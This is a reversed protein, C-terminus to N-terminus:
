KSLTMQITSTRTGARLVATYTGSPHGTADFRLSHEGPEQQGAFLIEVLRGLADFVEVSVYGSSATEYRLLTSPNFPNPYNQHLQFRGAVGPTTADNIIGFIVEDDSSLIGDSGTIRLRYNTGKPAKILAETLESEFCILKWTTGNDTSFYVTYWFKTDGDADTAGWKAIFSGGEPVYTGSTPYTFKVVPANNSVIRETIPKLNKDSVVVKKVNDPFPAVFAFYETSMVAPEAGEDLGLAQFTPRYYYRSLEAGGADLFRFIHTALASDVMNSPTANTMKVWPGFSFAKTTSDISGEVFIAKAALSKSFGPRDSRFKAFGNQLRAYDVDCIWTNFPMSENTLKAMGMFCYVKELRGVKNNLGYHLIRNAFPDVADYIEKGIFYNYYEEQMDIDTTSMDGRRLGFSHGLSHVLFKHSQPSVVMFDYIGSWSATQSLRHPFWMPHMRTGFWDRDVAFVYRDYAPNALRMQKYAKMLYREWTDVLLTDPNIWTYNQVDAGRVFSVQGAKMPWTQEMLTRATDTMKSLENLRNAPYDDLAQVFVNLTAGGENGWSSGTVKVPITMANNNENTEIIRGKPHTADVPDIVVAINANGPTLTTNHIPFYLFPSEARPLSIETLPNELNHDVGLNKKDFVYFTDYPVGGVSVRVGFKDTIAESTQIQVRVMFPKNNTISTEGTITQLVAGEVFDIDAGQPESVSIINAQDICQISKFYVELAIASKYKQPVKIELSCMGNADMTLVGKMLTDGLIRVLYNVTAGASDTGDLVNWFHGTFTVKDEGDAVMTRKDPGIDFWYSTGAYKVRLFPDFHASRGLRENNYLGNCQGWYNKTIDITDTKLTTLITSQLGDRQFENYNIRVGSVDASDFGAGKSDITMTTGAEFLNYEIVSQNSFNMSSNSTGGKFKSNRCSTPSNAPRLSLQGNSRFESNTVQTAMLIADNEVICKDASAAGLIQAENRLTCLSAKVNFNPSNVFAFDNRGQDTLWDLTCNNMVCEYNNYLLFDGGIDILGNLPSMQGWCQFNLDRVTGGSASVKGPKYKPDNADYVIIGSVKGTNAVNYSLNCGPAFHMEGGPLAIGIDTGQYVFPGEPYIWVSDILNTKINITDKRTLM